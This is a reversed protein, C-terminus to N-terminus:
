RAQEQSLRLLADNVAKGGLRAFALGFYQAGDDVFPALSLQIPCQLAALCFAAARMTEWLAWGAGLLLSAGGILMMYLKLRSLEPGFLVGGALLMVGLIMGTARWLVARGYRIVFDEYSVTPQRAKFHVRTANQKM